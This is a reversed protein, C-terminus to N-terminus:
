RGPDPVFRTMGASDSGCFTSFNELEDTRAEDPPLNPHTAFYVALPVGDITLGAYAPPIVAELAGTSADRVEENACVPGVATPSGMIASIQAFSDEGVVTGSSSGGALVETGVPPQFEIRANSHAPATGEAPSGIATGGAGFETVTYSLPANSGDFLNFTVTQNTALEISAFDFTIQPTPITVQAYARRHGFFMWTSALVVVVALPVLVTKSLAKM